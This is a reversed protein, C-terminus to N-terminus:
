MYYDPIFFERMDIGGIYEKKVEGDFLFRVTDIGDISTLSNVISYLMLLELNKNDPLNKCFQEDLDVYATGKKVNVSMGSEIEPIVRLIKPNYDQGEILKKIIKKAGTNVSGSDIEYDMPILRHMSRDVYYIKSHMKRADERKFNVINGSSIVAIALVALIVVIKKM